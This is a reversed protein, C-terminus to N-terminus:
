SAREAARIASSSFDWRGPIPFFMRRFATPVKAIAEEASLFAGDAVDVVRGFVYFSTRLSEFETLMAFPEAGWAPDLMRVLADAGLVFPTGPHLRAKDLYLPDQRSFLVTRERLCKARLLMEQVTLSPKNPPTSSVNFIVDERMGRKASLASAIGFHGAHPPNFAGPFIPVHPPANRLRLGNEFVPREFFRETALARFDETHLDQAWCADFAALLVRLGERDAIKGDALRAAPGVGGDIAKDLRVSRGIVRDQTMCVVHVRHDGRHARNSAVSATLALGVPEVDDKSVNSVNSVNSVDIARLYAATALDIAFPISAFSEPTVGMAFAVSEELSYPFSAGSLFSSCGPLRWLREQIGAGAGTAVVHLRIKRELLKALRADIEKDVSDGSTRSM